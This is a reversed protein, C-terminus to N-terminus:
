CKDCLIKMKYCSNVIIHNINLNTVLMPTTFIFFDKCYTLKCQYKRKEDVQNDVHNWLDQNKYGGKSTTLKYCHKYYRM